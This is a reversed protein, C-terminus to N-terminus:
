FAWRGLATGRGDRLVLSRFGDFRYGKIVKTASKHVVDTMKTMAEPGGESIVSWNEIVVNL